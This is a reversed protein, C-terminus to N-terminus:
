QSSHLPAAIERYLTLSLSYVPNGRRNIFEGTIRFGLKEHLALSATNDKRIQATVTHYAQTQTLLQCIAAFAYGRRRYPPYVEVGESAVGKEQELLSVYGVLVGGSAIALMQFRRGDYTGTNFDSILKKADAESMAPYQHHVLVAWDDPTYPRLTIM